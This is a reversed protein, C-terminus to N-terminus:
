FREEQTLVIDGDVTKCTLRNESAEMIFGSKIVDGHKAETEVQCPVIHNIVTIDGSGSTVSTEKARCASLTIDGTESEITLVEIAPNIRFYVAANCSGLIEPAERVVIEVTDDKPMLTVQIADAPIGPHAAISYSSDDAAFLVKIDISDSKIYLKIAEGIQLTHRSIEVYDSGPCSISHEMMKVFWSVGSEFLDGM